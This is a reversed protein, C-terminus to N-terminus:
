PAVLEVREGTGTEQELVFGVGPAYYKFALDGPGLPTWDLTKVCGTYTTGDGLVVTVGTAVVVAMDEAEGEYHEQRYSAGPLPTAWMVIGPLAGDVGTEWAGESSTGLFNGEDDYEYNTVDEGMYWVNGGDDQAYWDYTDEILVGDLFVRDRVERCPVGGVLRTGLVEVLVDESGDATEASFMAVAGQPWPLFPNDVDTPDSFTATAFDPLSGLSVDFAGLFEVPASEGDLPLEAVVGLGPAYLKYELAGPELPSWELVKLCGAYPVGCATVYEVDVAVPVAMDEAEDEHFEQRYSAGIVPAAWMVIGPLAGSVGAEWSGSSDRGVENGDDDYEYNTVDEGMYWVNGEDDQAYWDYTDEILLDERFVRDRVVVCEIGAVLRTEEAVEVITREPEEPNEASFTRATLPQLPLFGNTIQTPNSFTAAGLDPLSAATDDFTGRREARSGGTADKSMVLGVGPAYYKFETSDTELPNWDRTKLCTYTTGCELVVTEALAVIAGMDEAEGPYTEQAYTDGVIPSAKMLIGAVADAGVGAVDKGTEWSGDTNTGVLNDDDDYEYNVVAEGLYWVNGADDQAYWDEADEILLDGIWARARVRVCPVGAVARTTELVEELVTELGDETEGQHLAAEGAVLPFYPNTVATPASLFLASSFAPEAPDTGAVPSPTGCGAFALLGVLLLATPSPSPARM